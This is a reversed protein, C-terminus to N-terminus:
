PRETGIREADAPDRLLRDVAAGFSELDYPDDVLLGTEEDIVQDPIGGVRSAVVPPGEM